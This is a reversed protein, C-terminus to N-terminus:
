KIKGFIKMYTNQYIEDYIAQNYAMFNKIKEVHATLYIKCIIDLFANWTKDQLATVVLVCLSLNIDDKFTTASYAGSSVFKHAICDTSKKDRSCAIIWDSLETKEKQTSVIYKKIFEEDTYFTILWFVDKEFLQLKKDVYCANRLETMLKTRDIGYKSLTEALDIVTKILDLDRKETRYDSLLMFMLLWKENDNLEDNENIRLVEKGKKTIFYREGDFTILGANQLNVVRHKDEEQGCDMTSWESRKKGDKSKFADLQSFFSLIKRFNTDIFDFLKGNCKDSISQYNKYWIPDKQKELYYQLITM